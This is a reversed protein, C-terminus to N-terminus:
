DLIRARYLAGSSNTNVSNTFNVTGSTNTLVLYPTWVWDPAAEEVLYTCGAEGILSWAVSGDALRNVFKIIGVNFQPLGATLSFSQLGSLPAPGSSGGGATIQFVASEGFKGGLARAIEFTGGATPDWARVQVVANSGAPVNPLAVVANSFYGASFGTGFTVPSGVARLLPLSPGAYLQAECLGNLKTVGDLDYVPANLDVDADLNAFFVTGGGQPSQTVTLTAPLSSVSGALNTIVVQYAGANTTDVEPFTLNSNTAGPIPVGNFSWQYSLPQTGLAAVVLSFFGGQVVSEGFPQLLITPYSPADVSLAAVATTAAGLYNSMILYYSGSNNTVADSVLLSINTQGALPANQFFWQFSLPETGTVQASFQAAGGTEVSQSTPQTIVAPAATQDVVSFDDMWVTSALCSFTVTTTTTSAIATFNTWLWFGAGSPPIAAYGVHNSNWQVDVLGNAGDSYGFQIKYTHGPVTPITQWVSAGTNLIPFTDGDCDFNPMTQNVYGGISGSMQWYVADFIGTGEWSPEQLLNGPILHVSVDPTLSSSLLVDGVTNTPVAAAIRYMQGSTVPFRVDNTAKTVLSLAAVSDGTYVAIVVNTALSGYYSTMYFQGYEPAQWTWWVSKEPTAGIHAPEGPEMTAGVMSSPGFGAGPGLVLPANTFNDNPPTTFPTETLAFFFTNGSGSFQFYYVDGAIALFGTHNTALPQLQTLSPGTFGQVYPRGYVLSSYLAYSAHGTYPAAWAVWVTNGAPSAPEGAESTAASFDGYYTLNTGTVPAADAFADNTSAISQASFQSDLSFGGSYTYGAALQLSYEVGAAVPFNGTNQPSNPPGLSPIVVMSSFNTGRYLTLVPSFLASTAQVSLLGDSPAVFRWWLTNTLTPDPLPEGAESSAGYAYGDFHYYPATMNARDAFLANTSPPPPVMESMTVTFVGLPGPLEAVVQIELKAGQNVEIGGDITRGPSVLSGFTTGEYVNAYLNLGQVETANGIYFVGNSPATWEYWLSAGWSPGVNPEGPETTALTDDDQVTVNTGTVGTREAFMDNTPQALLSFSAAMLAPVGVALIQLRTKM